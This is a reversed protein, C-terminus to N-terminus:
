EKFGDFSSFIGEKEPRKKEPIDRDEDGVEKTEGNDDNTDV